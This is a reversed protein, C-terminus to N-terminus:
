NKGRNGVSSWGSFALYVRSVLQMPAWSLLGDGKLVVELCSIFGERKEVMCVSKSEGGKFRQWICIIATFLSQKEKNTYDKNGCSDNLFHLNVDYHAILVVVVCM